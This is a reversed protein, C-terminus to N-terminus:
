GLYKIYNHIIYQSNVHGVSGKLQDFFGQLFYAVLYTDLSTKLPYSLKSEKSYGGMFIRSRALTM